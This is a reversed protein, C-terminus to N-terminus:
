VTFAAKSNEPDTKTQQVSWNQVTKINIALNM